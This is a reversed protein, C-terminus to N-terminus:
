FAKKTFEIIIIAFMERICINYGQSLGYRCITPICTAIGEVYPRCTSFSGMEKIQGKIRAKEDRSLEQCIPEFKDDYSKSKDLTRLSGM